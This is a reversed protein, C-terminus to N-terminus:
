RQARKAAPQWTMDAFAVAVMFFAFAAGICTVVTITESPM